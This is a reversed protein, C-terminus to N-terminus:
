CRWRARRALREVLAVARNRLREPDRHGKLAARMVCRAVVRRMKHAPFRDLEDDVAQLAAEYAQAAIRLGDPGVYPQGSKFAIIAQMCCEGVNFRGLVYARKRLVAGHRPSFVRASLVRGVRM